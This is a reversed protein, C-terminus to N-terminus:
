VSRIGRATSLRRPWWSLLSGSTQSCRWRWFTLIQEILPGIWLDSTVRGVQIVTGEREWTVTPPPEGGFWIDYRLSPTWKRKLFTKIVVRNYCRFTHGKKLEIDYMGPQHIFAKVTSSFILLRSKKKLAMMTSTKKLDLMNSQYLRHLLLWQLFHLVPLPHSRVTDSRPSWQTPHSPRSQITGTVKPARTWRRSGPHCITIIAKIWRHTLLQQASLVDGVQFYVRQRWCPHSMHRLGDPRRGLKNPNSSQWLAGPTPFPPSPSVLNPQNIRVPLISGEQWMNMNTEQSLLEFIMMHWCQTYPPKTVSLPASRSSLQYQPLLIPATYM